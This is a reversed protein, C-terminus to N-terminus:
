LICCSHFSLAPCKWHALRGNWYSESRTLFNHIVLELMAVDIEKFIRIIKTKLEALTALRTAYCCDMVYGWLFYDLLSLKPRYPPWSWGKNFIGPIKKLNCSRWFDQEVVNIDWHCYAAKGWGVLVHFVSVVTLRENTSVGGEGANQSLERWYYESLYFHSWYHRKFQFYGM